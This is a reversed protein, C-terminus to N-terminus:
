LAIVTNSDATVESEKCGIEVVDPDKEEVIVQKFYGRNFFGDLPTNQLVYITKKEATENKLEFSFILLFPNCCRQKSCLTL